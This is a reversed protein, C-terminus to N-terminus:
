REDTNQHLMVKHKYLTARQDVLPAFNLRLLRITGKGVTSKSSILGDPQLVFHESWNDKRPNYLGIIKEEDFDYTSINPGKHTNCPM